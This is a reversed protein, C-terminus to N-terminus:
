IERVEAVGEVRMVELMQRLLGVRAGPVQWSTLSVSLGSADAHASVHLVPAVGFCAAHRVGDEGGFLDWMGKWSVTIFPDLGLRAEVKAFRLHRAPDPGLFDFFHFDWGQATMEATRGAIRRALAPVSEGPRVKVPLLLSRADSNFDAFRGSIGRSIPINLHVRCGRREPRTCFCTAAAAALLAAMGCKQARAQALLADRAGPGLNVWAVGPAAAREKAGLREYRRTQNVFFGIYWLWKPMRRLPPRPQAFFAPVAQGRVAAAIASLLRLMSLGDAIAHAFIATFWSGQACARIEYRWSSNAGDAAYALIGGATGGAAACADTPRLVPRGDLWELRMRLIPFQQAALAVAQELEAADCGEFLATVGCPLGVGERDLAAHMAALPGVAAVVDLTDM